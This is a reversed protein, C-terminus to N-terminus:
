KLKVQTFVKHSYGMLNLKVDRLSIQRNVGSPFIILSQTPVFHSNITLRVQSVYHLSIQSCFASM